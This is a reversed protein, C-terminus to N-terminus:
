ANQGILLRKMLALDFVDLCDDGNLDAAQCDALAADEAALLWKQLAIVDLVDFVGDATCDGDLEAPLWHVYLTLDETATYISDATIEEDDITYWGAFRSGPTGEPEPLEGFATGYTVQKTGYAADVEFNVTYVHPKWVAYLDVGPANNRIWSDVVNSYTAWSKKDANQEKSWGLMDYGPKEWLGFGVDGPNMGSYRGTGDPKYGFKQNAIGTTFTEKVTKTDSSDLNRHFTVAVSTNAYAPRMFVATLGNGIKHGQGDGYSKYSMCYVQSVGNIWINGQASMTSDTMIAVHPYSKTSPRYYFILDGAQPTTVKVAGKKEMIAKFDGVTGGHAVIDSGAGALEICDAVYEDCWSETYGFQSQTRGKQSKAIAAVDAAMNGTLKYKSKDFHDKRCSIASAPMASISLMVAGMVSATLMCCWKRLRGKNM